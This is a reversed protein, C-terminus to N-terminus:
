VTYVSSTRYPQMKAAYLRPIRSFTVTITGDGPMYATPAVLVGGYGLLNSAFPKQGEEAALMSAHLFLSLLILPIIADKKM